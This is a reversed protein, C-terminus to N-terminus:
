LQIEECILQGGNNVKLTYNTKNPSTLIIKKIFAKEWKYDKDGLDIPMDRSPMLSNNSIYIRNIVNDNDVDYLEISPCPNNMLDPKGMGIRGRYIHGESNAREIQVCRYNGDDSTITINKNINDLYDGCGNKRKPEYKNGSNFLNKNDGTTVNNCTDTHIIIAGDGGIIFNNKIVVNNAIEVRVCNTNHKNTLVNGSIIINNHNIVRDSTLLTNNCNIEIPRINKDTGECTTITNNNIQINENNGNTGPIKEGINNYEYDANDIIVGRMVNEIVNNEIYVNKMQELRVANGYGGICGNGQIYNNLIYINESKNSDNYQTHTGIANLPAPFRDSATFKNNTIYINKCRTGDYCKSNVPTKDESFGTSGYYATDIQVSERFYAEKDSKFGKITCNNIIVNECAIIDITHSGQTDLFVVNDFIINSAHFLTVVSVNTNESGHNLTGGIIKINSEGNYRTTNNSYKTVFMKGNQHKRNIIAGVGMVIECGSQLEIQDYIDYEGMPIYIKKYNDLCFQLVSTWDNNEVLEKKLTINYHTSSVELNIGTFGMNVYKSLEEILKLVTKEDRKYISFHNKNWERLVDM